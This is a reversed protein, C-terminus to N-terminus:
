DSGRLVTLDYTVSNFNGMTDHSTFQLTHTGASLPKVLVFYGDAVAPQSHGTVCGDVSTALSPDGTFSFLPTRYRYAFLNPVSTGDITLTLADVGDVVQKAGQALFDELSQGPAPHFSPDPCPYDNLVGSLNVLLARDHPITCTRTLSGPGGFSSALYWVHGAQQQACDVGTPDLSPNVSTPISMEWRWWDESWETMGDGYPHANPNFALSNAGAGSVDQDASPVSANSATPATTSAGDCGSLIALSALALAATAIRITSSHM